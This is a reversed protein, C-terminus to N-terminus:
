AAVAQFDVRVVDGGADLFADVDDLLVQVQAQAVEGAVAEVHHDHGLRQLGNVVGVQQHLFHQADAALADDGEGVEAVPAAAPVQRALTAHWIPLADHLSLTYID